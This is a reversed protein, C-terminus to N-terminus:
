NLNSILERINVIIHVCCYFSTQRGGGGEGFVCVCACVVVVVVLGSKVEFMQNASEQTFLLLTYKTLNHVHM